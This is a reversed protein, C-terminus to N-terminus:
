TSVGFVLHVCEGGNAEHGDGHALGTRCATFPEVDVEFNM